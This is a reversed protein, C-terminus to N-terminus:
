FSGKKPPMDLVDSLFELVEERAETLSPPDTPNPADMTACHGALYTVAQVEGQDEYISLNHWPDLLGNTFMVNSAHLDYGSPLPTLWTAKLTRALPVACVRLLHQDM